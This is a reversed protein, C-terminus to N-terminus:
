ESPKEISNYVTGLVGNVFGPSSESGFEKALEVAEDIIVKPQEKKVFCLEWVALRLISLDIKNIREIPWKPASKSIIEDLESHNDLIEESEDLSNDPNRHAIEDFSHAFLQKVIKQRKSHRPDKIKKKKMGVATRVPLILYNRPRVAPVSLWQLFNLRIHPEEKERGEQQHNLKQCHAWQLDKHKQKVM